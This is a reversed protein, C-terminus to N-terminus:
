INRNDLVIALNLLLQRLTATEKLDNVMVFVVLM